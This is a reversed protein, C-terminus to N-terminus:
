APLAPRRQRRFALMAITSLGLLMWTSPEPVAIVSFDSNHDLVAWVVGNAIDVGYTGLHFDTGADYAGAVFDSEGGVNGDVANVWLGTGPNLWGLRSDATVLSLDLKLQLVFVDTAMTGSDVVPLGSLEFVDSVRGADNLAASTHSFSGTLTSAASTQGGILRAETAIGGLINGNYSPLSSLQFGSSLERSLSGGSLTIANTVNRGNRILLNGGAINVAGTGLASNSDAVLTGGTITTGGSYNNSGSNLITTGAKVSVSTIGQIPIAVGSATSDNTFYYSSSNHNFEVVASGNGNIGSQVSGANLIGPAGGDGIHLAGTVNGANIGALLVYGTQLQAGDKLTLSGNASSGITTISSGTTWKTGAGSVIMVGTSDSAVSDIYVSGTTVKAGGTVVVSSGVGGVQLSSTVNLTAGDVTLTSTSGSGNESIGLGGFDAEAGNTISLSGTGSKAFALLLGPAQLLSNAGDVSITANTTQIGGKTIFSGGSSIALVSQSTLTTGFQSTSTSNVNVQGGNKVYVAGQGALGNRLLGAITWVAGAGNITATGSDGASYGLYADAPLSLTTTSNPNTQNDLTLTGQGIYGLYLNTQPPATYVGTGDYVLAAKAPHLSLMWLSLGATGLRWINGSPGACSRRHPRFVSHPRYINNLDM